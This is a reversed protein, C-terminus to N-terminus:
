EEKGPGADATETPKEKPKGGLLLLKEAWLGSLIAYALRNQM